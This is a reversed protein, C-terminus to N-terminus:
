TRIRSVFSWLRIASSQAGSAATSAATKIQTATQHRLAPDKVVGFTISFTMAFAVWPMLSRRRQVGSVAARAAGWPLQHALDDPWPTLFVNPKSPARCTVIPRAAAPPPASLAPRLESMIRQVMARDLTFPPPRQYVRTVVDESSDRLPNRATSTMTMLGGGRAFGQLPVAPRSVGVFRSAGIHAAHVIV